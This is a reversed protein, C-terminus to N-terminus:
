TSPGAIESTDFYARVEAFREDRLVIFNVGQIPHRTGDAEVLAATWEVAGLEGDALDRVVSVELGPFRRASEEYYQRIEDHGRLDWGPAVFRADEHYHRLVGEIDRACEAEWYSEAVRRHLTM